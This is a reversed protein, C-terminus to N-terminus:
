PLRSACLRLLKSRRPVYIDATINGCVEGDMSVLLKFRKYVQEFFGRGRAENAHGMQSRGKIAWQVSM